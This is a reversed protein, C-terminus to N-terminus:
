IKKSSFTKGRKIHEMVDRMVNKVFRRKTRGELQLTKCIQSVTDDVGGWKDEPPCDHIKTFFYAIMDKLQEAERYLICSGLTRSGNDGEPETATCDMIENARGENDIEVVESRLRLQIFLGPNVVIEQIM